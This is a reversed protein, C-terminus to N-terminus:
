VKIAESAKRAQWWKRVEVPDYWRAPNSAARGSQTSHDLRCRPANPDSGLIAALQRTPVGLMEAIEPTTRLPTRRKDGRKLNTLTLRM